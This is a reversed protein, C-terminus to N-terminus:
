NNVRNTLFEEVKEAAIMCSEKTTYAIGREVFEMDWAFNNDDSVVLETVKSMSGALDIVYYIQGYQLEDIDQIQM